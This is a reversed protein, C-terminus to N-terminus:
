NRSKKSKKTGLEEKVKVSEGTPRREVPTRFVHVFAEVPYGCKVTSDSDGPVVVSVSGREINAKLDTVATLGKSTSLALDDLNIKMGNLDQIDSGDPLRILVFKASKQKKHINKIQKPHFMGSHM